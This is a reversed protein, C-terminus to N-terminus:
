NVETSGKPQSEASAHGHREIMNDWWARQAALERESINPLSQIRRVVDQTHAHAAAHARLEALQDPPVVGTVFGSEDADLFGGIPENLGFKEYLPLGYLGIPYKILILAVLDKVAHNVHNAYKLL